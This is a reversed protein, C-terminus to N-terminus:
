RRLTKSNKPGGAGGLLPGRQLADLIIRDILGELEDNVFAENLHPETGATTHPLRWCLTQNGLKRM